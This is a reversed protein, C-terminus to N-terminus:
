DRESITRRLLNSLRTTSARDLTQRLRTQFAEIEPSIQEAFNKAIESPDRLPDSAAASQYFDFQACMSIMANILQAVQRPAIDSLTSNGYLFRRRWIQQRLNPAGPAADFLFDQLLSPQKDLPVLQLVLRSVASPLLQSSGHAGFVLDARALATLLNADYDYGDARRTRNTWGPVDGPLAPHGYIDLRCNPWLKKLWQALRVLRIRESTWNGGWQRTGRYIFIIQPATPNVPGVAPNLNFRRLDYRSPDPHSPATAIHVEASNMCLNQFQQDLATHWRETERPACQVEWIQHADAPIYRLLEPTAIVILGHQPFQDLYFQANLLLLLSHGFINDLTNLIIWSKADRRHHIKIPTNEIRPQSFLADMPSSWWETHPLATTQKNLHVCPAYLGHSTPFDKFAAVGNHEGRILIRMGTLHIEHPTFTIGSHQFPKLKIQPSVQIMSPALMNM